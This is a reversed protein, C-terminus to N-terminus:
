GLARWTLDGASGSFFDTASTLAGIVEALRFERASATALTM